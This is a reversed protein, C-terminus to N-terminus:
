PLGDWHLEPVGLHGLWQFPLAVLTATMVSLWAARQPRYLKMFKTQVRLKDHTLQDLTCTSTGESTAKNGPRILTALMYCQFAPFPGVHVHEHVHLHLDM